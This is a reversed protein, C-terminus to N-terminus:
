GRPFLRQTTKILAKLFLATQRGTHSALWVARTRRCHCAESLLSTLLRTDRRASLRSDVNQAPRHEPGALVAPRPAESSSSRNWDQRIRGLGM